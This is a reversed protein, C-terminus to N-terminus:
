FAKIQSVDIRVVVVVVVLVVLLVVFYFTFGCYYVRLAESAPLFRVTKLLQDNNVHWEFITAFFSIRIRREVSSTHVVKEDM